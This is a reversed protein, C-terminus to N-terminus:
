RELQCAILIYEVLGLLVSLDSVIWQSVYPLRVRNVLGAVGM